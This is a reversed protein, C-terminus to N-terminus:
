PRPRVCATPDVMMAARAGVFSESHLRDSTHEFVRARQRPTVEQPRAGGGRREQRWGERPKRDGFRAVTAARVHLAVGAAADRARGVVLVRRQNLRLHAARRVAFQAAVQADAVGVLVDAAIAQRQAGIFARDRARGQTDFGAVHQADAEGVRQWGVRVRGRDVHRQQMMEVGGVQMEVAPVDARIPNGVIHKARDLRPLAVVDLDRDGLIVGAAGIPIMRMVM